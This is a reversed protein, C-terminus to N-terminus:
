NNKELKEVKERLDVINELIVLIIRSNKLITRIYPTNFNPDTIIKNEADKIINTIEEIAEKTIIEVM